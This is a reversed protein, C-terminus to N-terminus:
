QCSKDDSNAAIDTYQQWEFGSDFSLFNALSPLVSSCKSYSSCGAYTDLNWSHIQFTEPAGTIRYFVVIQPGM